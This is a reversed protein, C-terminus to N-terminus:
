VSRIESSRDSVGDSAVVKRRAVGSGAGILPKQTKFILRCTRDKAITTGRLVQALEWGRTGYDRLVRELQDDLDADSRVELQHVEYLWVSM